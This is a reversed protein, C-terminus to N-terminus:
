EYNWTELGVVHNVLPGFLGLDCNTDICRSPMKM